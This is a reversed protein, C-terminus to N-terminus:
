LFWVSRVKKAKLAAQEQLEAERKRRNEEKEVRKREKEEQKARNRKKPQELILQDLKRQGKNARASRRLEILPIDDESQPLSDCGEAALQALRSKKSPRGLKKKPEYDTQQVEANVSAANTVNSHERKKRAKKSAKKPRGRMKKVPQGSLTARDVPKDYSKDEEKCANVETVNTCHLEDHNECGDDKKRGDCVSQENNNSKDVAGEAVPGSCESETNIHASIGTDTADAARSNWKIIACDEHCSEDRLSTSNPIGNETVRDAERCEEKDAEDAVDTESDVVQAAASASDHDTTKVEADATTKEVTGNHFEEPVSAVTSDKCDVTQAGTSEVCPLRELSNVTATGSKASLNDRTEEPVPNDASVRDANEDNSEKGAVKDLAAQEQQCASSRSSLSPSAEKVRGFKRNREAATKLAKDRKRKTPPEEEGASQSRSDASLSDSLDSETLPAVAGDESSLSPIRCFSMRKRKVSTKQAAFV